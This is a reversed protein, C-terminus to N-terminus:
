HPQTLIAALAIAATEVRLIRPGLRVSRWGISMAAAIEDDTLGGEPGIGIFTPRLDKWDENCIPSGHPDALWLRPPAAQQPHGNIPLQLWEGWDHVRDVDMLRNRGCQKSAEIVYRALKDSPKDGTAQSRETRLPVLRTVGLEVAKEVLWRGRDGKPLAVGLALTFPLERSIECRDLVKLEVTSRGCATVEADFEAGSGDFLTVRSGPAARLVHLLHHAEEGRLTVAPQSVSVNLFYRRKM